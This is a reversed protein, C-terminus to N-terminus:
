HHITLPSHHLPRKITQKTWQCNVISWQGNVMSWQCCSNLRKSAKEAPKMTASCNDSRGGSYGDATRIKRFRRRIPAPRERFTVTRERLEDDSLLKMEPELANIDSVIPWLRKLLRENASGFVKTAVKNLIATM